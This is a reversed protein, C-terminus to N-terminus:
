FFFFIFVRKPKPALCICRKIDKNWICVCIHIINIITSNKNEHESPHLKDGGERGGSTHGDRGRSSSRWMARSISHISLLPLFM